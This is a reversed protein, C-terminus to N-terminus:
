LRTFSIYDCAIPFFIDDPSSLCVSIVVQWEFSRANEALDVVVANEIRDDKTSGLDCVPIKKKLCEKLIRVLEKNLSVLVAVRSYHCQDGEKAYEDVESCIFDSAEEVGDCTCISVAPGSVQHGLYQDLPTELGSRDDAELLKHVLANLSVAERAEAEHDELKM